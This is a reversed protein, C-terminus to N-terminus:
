LIVQSVLYRSMGNYHVVSGDDVNIGTLEGCLTKLFTSCGSGPRGLVILLEGSKLVGDFKHLIQKRSKSGSFLERVRFPALLFDSVTSQLQLAAGSGSVSLNKFVIGATKTERGDAQLDRMFLRLYKYLDFEKNNPDFVPDDEKLGTITDKRTISSSTKHRSLSTLIRNLEDKDDEDMNEAFSKSRTAMAFDEDFGKETDSSNSRHLRETIPAYRDSTARSPVESTAIEEDYDKAPMGLGDPAYTDRGSATRIIGDGQTGAYAM